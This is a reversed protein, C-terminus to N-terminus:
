LHESGYSGRVRPAVRHRVSELSCVCNRRPKEAEGNEKAQCGGGSQVCRPKMDIGMSSNTHEWQISLENQLQTASVAALWRMIVVVGGVMSGSVSAFRVCPARQGCLHVARSSSGHGLARCRMAKLLLRPRLNQAYMHQAFSSVWCFCSIWIREDLIFLHRSDPHSPQCSYTSRSSGFSFRDIPRVDVVHSGITLFNSVLIILLKAIVRISSVAELWLWRIVKVM